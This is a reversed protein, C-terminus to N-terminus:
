DLSDDHSVLDHAILHYAFIYVISQVPTSYLKYAYHTVTIILM